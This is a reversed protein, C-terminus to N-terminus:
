DLCISSMTVVSPAELVHLMGNSITGHYTCRRPYQGCLMSHTKQAVGSFCAAGVEPFLTYHPHLTQPMNVVM